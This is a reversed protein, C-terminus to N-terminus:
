QITGAVVGNDILYDYLATKVNEYLTKTGDSACNFLTASSNQDIPVEFEQLTVFNVGDQYGKAVKLTIVGLILDFSASTIKYELKTNSIIPM